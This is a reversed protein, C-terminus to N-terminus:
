FMPQGSPIDAFFDLRPSFFSSSSTQGIMGLSGTKRAGGQRDQHYRAFSFATKRERGISSGAKFYAM